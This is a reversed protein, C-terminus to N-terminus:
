ARGMSTSPEEKGPRHLAAFAAPTRDALASHPRQHNYHERFKALNQRADELVPQCFEHGSGVGFVGEYLCGGCEVRIARGCQVADHVFDLGWEQNVSTRALLPKGERVCHKRKKRRIM